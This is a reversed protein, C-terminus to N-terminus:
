PLENKIDFGLQALNEVIPAIISKYDSDYISTGPKSVTVSDPCPDPDDGDFTFSGIVAGTAAERVTVDVTAIWREITYSVGSSYNCAQLRTRDIRMCVVAQLDGRRYPLWDVPLHNLTKFITNEFYIDGTNVYMLPKPATSVPIYTGAGAMANSSCVGMADQAFENVAQVSLDRLAQETDKREEPKQRHYLELLQEVDGSSQLEDVSPGCASLSLLLISIILTSRSAKYFDM